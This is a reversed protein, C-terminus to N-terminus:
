CNEYIDLRGIEEELEEPEYDVLDIDCNDLEILFRERDMNALESAQVFTLKKNKFLQIATFLLMQAILEDKEQNLATLINESIEFTMRTTKM